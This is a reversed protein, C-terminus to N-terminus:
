YDHRRTRYRFWLAIAGLLVAITGAWSFLDDPAGGGQVRRALVGAVLLAYSADGALEARCAPTDVLWGQRAHMAVLLALVWVALVMTIVRLVDAALTM